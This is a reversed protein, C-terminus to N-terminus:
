HVLELVQDLFWLQDCNDIISKLLLFSYERFGTVLLFLLLPSSSRAYSNCFCPRRLLSLLSLIRCWCKFLSYLVSVHLKFWSVLYGSACSFKILSELCFCFHNQLWRSPNRQNQCKRWACREVSVVFGGCTKEEQCRWGYSGSFLFYGEEVEPIGNYFLWGVKASGLLM